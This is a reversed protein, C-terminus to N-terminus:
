RGGGVTQPMAFDILRYDGIRRFGIAKYAAAASESAAFLVARGVGDDRAMALHLAVARRAHGRGRREPPTYVGGVQVAGPMRANFATLSVPAEGERLLVACREDVFRRAVQAAAARAAATDARGLAEVEYRLRWEGLVPLDAETVVAAQGAGEPITMAALDLAFHPDARDLTAAGRDIGLAPCFRAVAEEEGNLGKVAEGRLAAALGAWVTGPLGEAGAAAVTANGNRTLSVAAVLRDADEAVWFAASAPHDTRGVGFRHLAQGM